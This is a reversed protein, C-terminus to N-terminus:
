MYSSEHYNFITTDTFTNCLVLSAVRPSIYCWESYKQALYGGLSSGFIHAKDVNLHDLMRTFGECFESMNWYAPPEVQFIHVNM